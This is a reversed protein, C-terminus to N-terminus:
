YIWFMLYNSLFKKKVLFAYKKSALIKQIKLYNKMNKEQNQKLNLFTTKKIHRNFIFNNFKGDSRHKNWILQYSIYKKKLMQIDLKDVGVSGMYGNLAM